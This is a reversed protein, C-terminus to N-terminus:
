FKGEFRKFLLLEILSETFIRPTFGSSRISDMLNDFFHENSALSAKLTATM